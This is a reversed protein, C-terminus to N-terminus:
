RAPVARPAHVTVEAVATRGAYTAEFRAAGASRCTVRADTGITGTSNQVEIPAVSVIRDDLSRWTISSPLVIAGSDLVAQATWAFTETPWCALEPAMSFQRISAPSFVTVRTTATFTQYSARVEADGPLIAAIINGQVSAVSPNLSEWRTSATVDKPDSPLAAAQAFLWGRDGPGLLVAEPFVGFITAVSGGSPMMPPVREDSGCSAVLAVVALALWLRLRPFGRVASM